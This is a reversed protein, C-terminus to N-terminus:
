QRSALAGSRQIKLRDGAGWLVIRNPTGLGVNLPPEETQVEEYFFLYATDEAEPVLRLNPGSARISWRGTLTNITMAVSSNHTNNEYHLVGNNLSFDEGKIELILDAGLYFAVVGGKQLLSWAGTQVGSAVGRAVFRNNAPTKNGNGGTLALVKLRQKPRSTSAIRSGKFSCSWEARSKESFTKGDMTLGVKLNAGALRLGEDVQKGTVRLSWKRAALDLGLSVGDAERSEYAYGSSTKWWTGTDSSCEYSFKDLFVKLRNVEPDFRLLHEDIFVDDIELSSEGLDDLHASVSFPVKRFVAQLTSMSEGEKLAIWSDSVETPGHDVLDQSGFDWYDFVYGPDPFARLDYKIQSLVEFQESTEVRGGATMLTASTVSGGGNPVALTLLAPEVGPLSPDSDLLTSKSERYASVHYTICWPRLNKGRFFDPIWWATQGTSKAQLLYPQVAIKTVKPPNTVSPLTINWSVSNSIEKVTSVAWDFSLDLKVGIDLAKVLAPFFSLGGKVAFGYSDTESETKGSNLTVSSSVGEGADLVGSSTRGKYDAAEKPPSYRSWGVYDTTSYRPRMGQSFWDRDPNTLSFAECSIRAEPMSLFNYEPGVQYKGDYGFVKYKHNMIQPRLLVLQGADDSPPNSTTNITFTKLINSSLNETKKRYQMFQAGLSFSGGLKSEDAKGGSVGIQVSEKATFTEEFMQNTSQGVKASTFRHDLDKLDHGNRPIPPPGEVVGLLHWLNKWEEQYDPDWSNLTRPAGDPKMVNSTYRLTKVAPNYGYLFWNTWHNVFTLDFYQRLGEDKDYIGFSTAVNWGVVTRNGPWFASGDVGPQPCVRATKYQWGEQQLLTWLKKDRSSEVLYGDAGDPGAVLYQGHWIRKMGEEADTHWIHIIQYDNVAGRVTGLALAVHETDAGGLPFSQHICPHEGNTLDAFFYLYASGHGGEYPMTVSLAIRESGHGYGLDPVAYTVASRPFGGPRTSINAPVTWKVGDATSMSYWYFDNERKEAFFLYMRDNMVAAACLWLPYKVGELIKQKKAFAEDRDEVGQFKLPKGQETAASKMSYIVGRELDDDGGIEVALFLYLEGKFVCTRFSFFPSKHLVPWKHFVLVEKTEDHQHVDLNSSGEDWYYKLKHLYKGVGVFTFLRNQFAVKEVGSVRCESCGFWVHPGIRVNEGYETTYGPINQVFRSSNDDYCCAVGPLFLGAASLFVLLFSLAFSVRRQGM